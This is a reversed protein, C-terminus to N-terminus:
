RDFFINKGSANLPIGLAVTSDGLWGLLRATAGASYMIRNDVNHISATKVASGVAIGLDAVRLVCNPGYYPTDEPADKLSEVMASCSVFGCGQCNVGAAKQGNVGVLLCGDSSAVNGADRIFFGIGHEEGFRKMARALTAIEDESLIM